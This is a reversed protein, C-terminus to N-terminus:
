WGKIASINFNLISTEYNEPSKKWQYPTVGIVKKFNRNFTSTTIFGCRVAIDKMSDNNKKMFECSMQIRIVNIYDVPTMHMSETFIRRFHTESLNCLEALEKIKISEAYNKGIYSLAKEIGVLDNKEGVYEEKEQGQNIRAIEYLLATTLGKITERYFEKKYRMEELITVVISSLQPYDEIKGLIADKYILQLIKSQYYENEPYISRLMSEPDLFLYEWYSETGEESNTTHPYNRPIVSVVGPAYPLIKENLTMIGYGDRCYGIELLNHFHLCEIGDGYKRIWNEGLMALVCEKQPLDYYRFEVTRKKKKSM